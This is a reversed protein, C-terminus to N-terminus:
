KYTLYILYILLYFLFFLITPLQSWSWHDDEGKMTFDKWLVVTKFLAKILSGININDFKDMLWFIRLYPCNQFVM